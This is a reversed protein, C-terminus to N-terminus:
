ADGGLNVCHKCPCAKKEISIKHKKLFEPVKKLRADLVLTPSHFRFSM